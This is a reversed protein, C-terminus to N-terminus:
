LSEGLLEPPRLAGVSVQDGVADNTAVPFCRRDQAVELREFVRDAAIQFRQRQRQGQFITSRDSDLGGLRLTLGLEAASELGFIHSMVSRSTRKTRVRNDRRKM